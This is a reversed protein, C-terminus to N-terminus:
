NADRGDGAEQDTDRDSHSGSRGGGLEPTEFMGQLATLKELDITGVTDVVTVFRVWESARNRTFTFSRCCRERFLWECAYVRHPGSPICCNYFLRPSGRPTLRHAM